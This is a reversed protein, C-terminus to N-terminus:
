QLLLHLHYDRLRDNHHVVIKDYFVRCNEYFLRCNEVIKGFGWWHEIFEACDRLNKYPKIYLRGYSDQQINLRLFIQVM